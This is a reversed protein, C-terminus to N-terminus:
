QKHNHAPCICDSRYMTRCLTAASPPRETVGVRGLSLVVGRRVCPYPHVKRLYISYEHGARLPEKLWSM